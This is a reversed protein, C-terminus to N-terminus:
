PAQTGMYEATGLIHGNMARKVRDKSANKSPVNLITDVAYLKFFYRHEGTGKPPCPGDYREHFASNVGNMGVSTQDSISNSTGPINYLVWHNWTGSPADPDDVILVFTKTGDPADRWQLTPVQNAGKCTFAVPMIDGYQFDPSSLTFASASSM